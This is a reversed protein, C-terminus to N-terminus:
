TIDDKRGTIEIFHPHHSGHHPPPSHQQYFSPIQSYFKSWDNNTRHIWIIEDIIEYIYLRCIWTNYLTMRGGQSKLSMLIIVIIIVLLLTLILITIVWCLLSLQWSLLCLLLHGAVEGLSNTSLLSSHTIYSHDIM